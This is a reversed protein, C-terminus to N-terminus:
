ARKVADGLTPYTGDAQRKLAAELYNKNMIRNSFAFVLRTTTMLAIAGTKPRLLLNEGISQILPNDFPAVDCTATIFM